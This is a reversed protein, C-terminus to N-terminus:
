IEETESAVRASAPSIWNCSFPKSKDLSSLLFLSLSVVRCRHARLSRTQRPRHQDRHACSLRDRQECLKMIGSVFFAFFFTTKGLARIWAVDGELASDPFQSGHGAGVADARLRSRDFIKMFGNESSWGSPPRM